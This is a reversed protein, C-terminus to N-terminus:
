ILDSGLARTHKSAQKSYSRRICIHGDMGMKSFGRAIRATFVEM